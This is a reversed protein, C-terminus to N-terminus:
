EKVAFTLKPKEKFRECLEDNCIFFTLDADIENQGASKCTISTSVSKAAAKPDDFDKATFAAKAIEIGTSSSLKAKFPTVTKLLFGEKPTITIKYTAAKAKAVAEPSTEVKLTYKKGQAQQESASVDATCGAGAWLGFAIAAAAIRISRTSSM